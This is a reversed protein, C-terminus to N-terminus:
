NGPDPLLFQVASQAVPKENVTLGSAPAKTKDAGKWPQPQIKGQTVANQPSPGFDGAADMVIAWTGDKLPIVAWWYVTGAGDCGMAKCQAM